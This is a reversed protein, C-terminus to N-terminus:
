NKALAVRQMGGEAMQVVARVKYAGLATAMSDLRTLTVTDGEAIQPAADPTMLLGPRNVIVGFEDVMGLASDFVVNALVPIMVGTHLISARANPFRRFIAATVRAESNAFSM